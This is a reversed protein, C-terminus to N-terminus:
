GISWAIESNTVIRCMLMIITHQSSCYLLVWSQWRRPESVTYGQLVLMETFRSDGSTQRIRFIFTINHRMHSRNPLPEPFVNGLNRQWCSFSAEYGSYHLWFLRWSSPLLNSSCPQWPIVCTEFIVCVHVTTSGTHLRPRIGGGYGQSNYLVVFLSTKFRLCCFITVLGVTSPSSSSQVPSSWCCNYFSLGTREDSLAGWMLLGAITHCYYLDPRLGWVPAKNWSLSASQGDTTIYSEFSLSFLKATLRLIWLPSLLQESTVM